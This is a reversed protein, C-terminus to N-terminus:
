DMHMLYYEYGADYPECIDEREDPPYACEIPINLHACMLHADEWNVDCGIPFWESHKDESRITELILAYNEDVAKWSLAQGDAMVFYIPYCGPFTYPGAKHCAIFEIATM